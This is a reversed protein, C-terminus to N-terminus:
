NPSLFLPMAIGRGHEDVTRQSVRSLLELFADLQAAYAADAKRRKEARNWRNRITNMAVRGSTHRDLDAKLFECARKTSVSAKGLQRVGDNSRGQSLRRRRLEVAVWTSVDNDGGPKRGRKQLQDPQKRKTM